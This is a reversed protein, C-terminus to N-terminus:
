GPETQRRLDLVQALEEEPLVQQERCLERVTRGTRHSEKAIEAARDYGIVPALATALSLSDENRAEIRERNAKEAGARKAKFVRNRWLVTPLLVPSALALVPWMLPSIRAAM